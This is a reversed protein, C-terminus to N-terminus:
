KRGWVGGDSWTSGVSGSDREEGGLGVTDMTDLLNVM